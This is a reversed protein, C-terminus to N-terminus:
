QHWGLATWDQRADEAAADLGDQDQPQYLRSWLLEGNYLLRLEIGHPYARLVARAERTDKRLVWV